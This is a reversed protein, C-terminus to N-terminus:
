CQPRLPTSIVYQIRRVVLMMDSDARLFCRILGRSDPSVERVSCEEVSYLSTHVCLVEIALLRVCLLEVAERVDSGLGYGGESASGARADSGPACCDAGWAGRACGAAAWCSAREGGPSGRRCRRVRNSRQSLAGVGRSCRAVDATAASPDLSFGRAIGQTGQASDKSGYGPRRLGRRVRVRSETAM